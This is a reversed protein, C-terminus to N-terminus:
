KIRKQKRLEKRHKKYAKYTDIASQRKSEDAPKKGYCVREFTRVLECIDFDISQCYRCVDDPTLCEWSQKSATKRIRNYVLVICKEPQYRKAKVTFLAEDFLPYLKILLIVIVVLVAAVGTAKIIGMDVTINEFPSNEDENTLSAGDGRYVVNTPEYVVWGLGSIFVQPYAHSTRTTIVYPYENETNIETVFGEMYRVTLGSAKAMLTFATAFDSCTGTKSEFLFYEISDTPAYYDLDYKFGSNRFYNQLAEAKQYDYECGKTIELALEKIKQPIEYDVASSVANEYESIFARITQLEEEYESASLIGRADTLASYYESLSMDAGGALKFKEASYVEEYYQMTYEKNEGRSLFLGDNEILKVYGKNDAYYDYLRVPYLIYVHSKFFPTLTITNIRDFREGSYGLLKELGHRQAFSEDASQAAKFAALLKDYSLLSSIQTYESLSKVDDFNDCVWVHLENNYYEFSQRALYMVEDAMVYYLTEDQMYRYYDANGSTRSYKDSVTHLSREELFLRQFTSYYATNNSRPIVAAVLLTVASIFVISIVKAGRGYIKVGQEQRKARQMFLIIFNALLLAILFGSTINDRVKVYLVCPVLCILTTYSIRHIVVTFYYGVSCFFVSFCVILAYIFNVHYYEEGGSLMWQSFGQHGSILMILIQLSIYLTAVYLITGLIRHRRMFELVGFILACAIFAIVSYKSFGSAGYIELVALNQMFCFLFPFVLPLIFENYIRKM